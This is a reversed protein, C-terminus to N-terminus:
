PGWPADKMVEEYSPPEYAPNDAINKMISRCIALFRHSYVHEDQSMSEREFHRAWEKRRENTLVSIWTEHHGHEASKFWTIRHAYPPTPITVAVLNKESDYLQPIFPIHHLSEKSELIANANKVATEIDEGEVSVEEFGENLEGDQGDM